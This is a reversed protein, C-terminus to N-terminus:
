LLLLFVEQRAGAKVAELGGGPWATSGQLGSARFGQLGSARFGQLQRGVGQGSYKGSMEPSIWAM